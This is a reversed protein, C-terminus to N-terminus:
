DLDRRLGLRRHALEHVVALEAKLLALALLFGSLVLMDHLDLFHAHGGTDVHAIEVGLEFVGLLENASPLRTFTETRKRPRSIACVSM